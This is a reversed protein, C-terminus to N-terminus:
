CCIQDLHEEPFGSLMDLCSCFDKQGTGMLQGIGMLQGTGMLLHIYLKCGLVSSLSLNPSPM